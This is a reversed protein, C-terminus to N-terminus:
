GVIDQAFDASRQKNVETYNSVHVMKRIAKTSQDGSQEYTSRVFRNAEDYTIYLYLYPQPLRRSAKALKDAEKNGPINCQSNLTLKKSCFELQLQLQSGCTGFNVNKQVSQQCCEKQKYAQKNKDQTLCM